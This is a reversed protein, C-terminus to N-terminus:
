YKWREYGKGTMYTYLIYIYTIFYIFTIGIKMWRSQWPLLFYRDPVMPWVGFPVVKEDAGESAFIPDFKGGWTVFLDYKGKSLVVPIDVGELPSVPNDEDLSLEVSDYRDESLIM